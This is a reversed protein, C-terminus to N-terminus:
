SPPRWLGAAIAIVIAIGSAFPAIQPASIQQGSVAFGLATLIFGVPLGILFFVGARGPSFSM